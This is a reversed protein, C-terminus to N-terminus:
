RMRSPRRHASSLFHAANEINANRQSFFVRCVNWCRNSRRFCIFKAATDSRSVFSPSFWRNREQGTPREVMSEKAAQRKKTPKGVTYPSSKEQEKKRVPQHKNSGAQLNQKLVHKMIFLLPTPTSDCYLWGSTADLLCIDRCLSLLTANYQITVHSSISGSFWVVTVTSQQNIINRRNRRRDNMKSLHATQLRCVSLIM